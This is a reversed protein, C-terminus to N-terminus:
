DTGITLATGDPDPSEITVRIDGQSGLMARVM